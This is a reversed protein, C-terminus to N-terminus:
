ARRPGPAITAVVCAGGLLMSQRFVDSAQRRDKAGLAQAVLSVTGVGLMQTLGMVLLTINGAAAVGAVAEKGIGSVFYLDVMLYLTQVLMSVTIPIAMAILHGRISGQTLDRM